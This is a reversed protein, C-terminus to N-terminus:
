SVPRRECDNRSQEKKLMDLQAMSQAAPRTPLNVGPIKLRRAGCSAMGIFPCCRRMRAVCTVTVAYLPLRMAAGRGAITEFLNMRVEVLSLVLDALFPNKTSPLAATELATRNFFKRGGSCEPRSGRGEMEAKM